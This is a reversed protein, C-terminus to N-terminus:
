SPYIIEFLVIFNLLTLWYFNNNTNNRFVKRTPSTHIKNHIDTQIAACYPSLEQPYAYIEHFETDHISIRFGSIKYFERLIEKIELPDKM